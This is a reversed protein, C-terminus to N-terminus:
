ESALPVTLPSSLLYRWAFGGVGGHTVMRLSYDRKM